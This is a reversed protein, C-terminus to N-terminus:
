ILKDVKRLYQSYITVIRIMGVWRFNKQAMQANKDRLHKCKDLLAANMDLLVVNKQVQILSRMAEKDVPVPHDNMPVPASPEIDPLCPRACRKSRFSSPAGPAPQSAAAGM